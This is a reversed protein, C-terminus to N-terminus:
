WCDRKKKSRQINLPGEKEILGLLEMQIELPKTLPKRYLAAFLELDCPEIWGLNGGSFRGKILKRERQRQRNFQLDDFDARFSLVPLSGLVMGICM